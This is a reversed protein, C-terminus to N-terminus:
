GGLAVYKLFLIKKLVLIYICIIKILDKSDRTKTNHIKQKSVCSQWNIQKNIITINQKCVYSQWNIQQKNKKKIM